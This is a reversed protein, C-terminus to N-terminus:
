GERVRSLLAPPSGGAVISRPDSTPCPLGAAGTRAETGVPLPLKRLVAFRTPFGGMRSLAQGLSLFLSAPLRRLGALDELGCPYEREWSFGAADVLSRLSARTYSWAPYASPQVPVTPEGSFTMSRRRGLRLGALGVKLDDLLSGVTPHPEFSLVLMGRPRLVRHLERLAGAPDTLFGFVRVLTVADFVDDPFPLHYVNAGVRPPGAGDSGFGRRLLPLTADVAVVDRSWRLLYPTLRGSGSGVELGRGPRVPALALGVIAGEVETVKGRGSWLRDFDIQSFDPTTQTGPAPVAPAPPMGESFRGASLGSPYTPRPVAEPATRDSARGERQAPREADRLSAPERGM